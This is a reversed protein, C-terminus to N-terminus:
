ISLLQGSPRPRMQFAAAIRVPLAAIAPAPPTISKVSSIDLATVHSTYAHFHIKQNSYKM